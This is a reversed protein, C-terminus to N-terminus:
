VKQSIKRGPSLSRTNKAGKPKAQKKSIPGLTKKLVKKEKVAPSQKAQKASKVM